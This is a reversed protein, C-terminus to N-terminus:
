LAVVKGLTGQVSAEVKDGWRALAAAKEMDYSHRDYVATVTSDTHNLIKAIILRAIGMSAMNSAATRRLDHPTFAVGARARIREYTSQARGIPRRPDTPSCFVYPMRGTTERITALLTLAQTSLPVRHAIGNKSVTAPITWWPSDIDVWRMTRVEVGRQATLLELQLIAGARSRVTECAQWVARIEDFTLVRDRPTEKAPAKVLACPNADVLDRELAWNFVKRVLALVRNARVPAGRAVIRDLLLAVDHRKLSAAPLPGWRPLVDAQLMQADKRWSRKNPKAHLELYQTSLDEVSLAHRALRKVGAPDGGRAIDRKADLAAERAEALTFAPYPGITWRRSRGHYRYLLVWSKYGKETVRLAFGPITPDFYDTQTKGPRATAGQVFRATMHTITPM